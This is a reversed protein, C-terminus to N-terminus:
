IGAGEMNENLVGRMFGLEKLAPSLPQGKVYKLAMGGTGFAVEIIIGKHLLAVAEKESIPVLVENNM